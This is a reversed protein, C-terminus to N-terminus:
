TFLGLITEGWGSTVQTSSEVREGNQDYIVPTRNGGLTSLDLKFGGPMLLFKGERVYRERLEEEGFDDTAFIELRLEEESNHNRRGKEEM